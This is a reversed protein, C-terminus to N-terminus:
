RPFPDDVHAEGQETRVAEWSSKAPYGDWTKTYM